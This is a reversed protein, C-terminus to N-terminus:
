QAHAQRVDAALFGALGDLVAPTVSRRSKPMHPRTEYHERVRNVGCGPIKSNRDVVIATFPIGGEHVHVMSLAVAEGMLQQYRNAIDCCM